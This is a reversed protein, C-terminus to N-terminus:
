MPVAPKHNEHVRLKGNCMKGGSESDLDKQIEGASGIAVTMLGAM